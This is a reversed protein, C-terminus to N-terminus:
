ILTYFYHFLDLGHALSSSHSTLNIREPHWQVAIIPLTAHFFGELVSDYSYLSPLLGRGLEICGQHHASNVIFRNGYIRQLFTDPISLTEHLQDSKLLSNWCHASASPLNECLTGGFYLNILQMGKCIGFVSKKARVFAHLLSLQQIDLEPNHFITYEKPSLAHSAHLFFSSFSNAQFPLKTPLDGGGPLLLADYSSTDIHPSLSITCDFGCYSLANEYHTCQSPLGAILIKKKIISYESM